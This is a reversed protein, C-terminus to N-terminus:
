GSPKACVGIDAAGASIKAGIPQTGKKEEDSGGGTAHIKWSVVLDHYAAAFKVRMKHSLLVLLETSHPDIM